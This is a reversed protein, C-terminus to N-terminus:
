TSEVVFGELDWRVHLAYRFHSLSFEKTRKRFHFRQRAYDFLM